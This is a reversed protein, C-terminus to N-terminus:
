QEANPLIGLGRHLLRQFNAKKKGGNSTVLDISAQDRCRLTKRIKCRDRIATTTKSHHCKGRSFPAKFIVNLINSGRTKAFTCANLIAEKGKFTVSTKKMANNERRKSSIGTSLTMAIIHRSADSSGPCLM